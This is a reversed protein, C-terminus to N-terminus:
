FSLSTTLNASPGAAIRYAAPTGDPQTNIPILKDKGLANNVNLQINWTVGSSLKRTYGVWLSVSSETPGWFPHDVDFTESKVGNITKYVSPYGIAIKDQWQYSGGFNVGNLIGAILRYNTILNFRWPRLEANNTGNLLQSLQFPTWVYPDWNVKKWTSTPDAGNARLLSGGASNFFANEATLFALTSGGAINTQVAKTKAANITIDWNQTPKANFEFEYGNSVNDSTATMGDPFIGGLGGTWPEIDNNQWRYDSMGANTGAPMNWASWFKQDTIFPSSLTANVAAQQDARDQATQVFVGNVMSGYNYNPGAYQPDGTLGAQYRKATVWSRVIVSGALWMNTVGYSAGSAKTTFKTVKLSVRGDLASVTVGYDKTSGSPAAIPQALMDVRGSSPEFNKSRNIFVSLDTGAPYYKKIFVPTHGVVSYSKTTGTVTNFPNAPLVFGPANTDVNGYPTSPASATYSKATDRRYGLTAVIVDDWFYGQWVLVKSSILDRRKIASTQLQQKDSNSYLTQVPLNVWGVYNSPNESQTSVTQHLPDNWPAGPDVYGAAAPNTPQNWRSDFVRLTNTSAPRQTATINSLNMGSPSTLSAASGGLYSIQQYWRYPDLATGVVGDPDATSGLPAFANAAWNQADSHNDINNLVGTVVHRGLLKTIWSKAIVDDAKIEAFGTLRQSERTTQRGGGGYYSSTAVYPRGVNPNPTGDPLTKNIDLTIALDSGAYPDYNAEIYRQRDYSGELGLHNNLFTQSLHANLAHFDQEEQRNPGDILKHYFDFISPDTLSRQRYSNAFPMGAQIAWTQTPAIVLLGNTPSGTISGDVVGSPALGHQQGMYYQAPAYFSGAGTSSNPQNFYAYSGQYLGTLNPQYNPSTSVTSGSGAVNALYFPATTFDFFQRNLNNVQAGAVNTTTGTKFWDTIRDTPPLTRPNTSDQSGTEFSVKLTTHASGMNLFKPEYRMAAYLRRDDSYAPKQEFKQDDKLLDLRLALQDKVLVRNLDLTGRYSNYSGYRATIEGSDKFTAQKLSANILGSPSGLGFLISNAGRQIEITDSNYADWPIDSTEYDRTNDASSLGRIRTSLDPRRLTDTQYVTQGAGNGGWNGYLGGIETGTTMTLLSQNNTAGTDKLFQSTVIQLASGIDNVNTRIRTGALTTKAQYGDKADEVVSFPSLVVIDDKKEDGAKVAVEERTPIKKKAPQPQGSPNPPPSDTSQALAPFALAGIALLAGASLRLRSKSFTLTTM